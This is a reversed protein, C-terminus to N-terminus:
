GQRIRWGAANRGKLQQQGLIDRHKDSKRADLAKLVSLASKTSGM